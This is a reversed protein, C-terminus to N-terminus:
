EYFKESGIFLGASSLLHFSFSGIIGELFALM